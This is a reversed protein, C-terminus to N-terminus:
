NSKFISKAKAPNQTIANFLFELNIKSEEGTKNETVVAYGRLSPETYLIETKM